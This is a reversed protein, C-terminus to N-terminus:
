WSKLGIERIGQLTNPTARWPSTVTNYSMLKQIPKCAYDVQKHCKM